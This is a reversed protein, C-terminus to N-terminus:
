QFRLTSKFSIKNVINECLPRCIGEYLRLSTNNMEISSCTVFFTKIFILKFAAYFIIRLGHKM